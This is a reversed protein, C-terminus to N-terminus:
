FRVYMRLGGVVTTDVNKLSTGSSNLTKQLAPEVIQLDLSTRLWPTLAAAYFMEVADEHDFGINLNQRLFPVFNNSFQTHAWGIGFNDHPRGPVAGNGGIGMAYSYKIPNADGDSAGFNFFMGVGRKPDAGPQWFYQDFAYFVSWTSDDYNASQVPVLLGPFFRELIRQLKPGPDVLAPFRQQALFRAINSPDQKLSIRTKNSWMGGVTQHGVLGFPKITAKGSAVVTAGDDFADTIDNSTTTGSADLAMASLEVGKWPLAAVGGGYASFPVFGLTAPFTLGTNMFQNRLDGAFEGKFGDLTFIKGAFLGFKPSLFQTFTANMLASVPQNPEPLLGMTNVPVTAGSERLVTNGFSTDAYVKFFGGPWLGLKGTDVNLTYDANGWFEWGTQDGGTLVGQPTLLVDTDFVVGKKALEDRLGGWSGTLRPRSWIDGGYTPPVKAPQASSPSPGILLTWGLLLVSVYRAGRIRAGKM